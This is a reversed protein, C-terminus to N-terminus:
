SETKFYVRLQKGTKDTISEEGMGVWETSRDKM